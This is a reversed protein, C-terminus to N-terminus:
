QGQGEPSEKSKNTVIAVRHLECQRLIDLLTVVRGYSCQTDGKLLIQIERDKSSVARLERKIAGEDLHNEDMYFKGNNDVTLIIKERELEIKETSAKPLNVNIGPLIIFTTSLMFFIILLFVVDVLPTMDLTSEEARKRKSWM